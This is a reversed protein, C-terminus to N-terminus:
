ASGAPVRERAPRTAESEESEGADREAARAQRESGRRDRDADSERRKREKDAERERAATEVKSELEDVVTAGGSSKEVTAAAEVEAPARMEDKTFVVEGKYVSALLSDLGGSEHARQVAQHTIIDGMNLVVNDERDLIVKGVPRGVADAIDSLRKKTQEEDVRQGTSDTMEAIKATFQDWLNGVTDKATSGADQATGLTVSATLAELKGASKAAEVDEARIRRGKPVIVSGTDSEVDSGTRRGVLKDEPRAEAARSTATDKASGLKDGAGKIAGQVGGVQADLATATEPRVYVVDNGMSEIEDTALYSTGKAADGILGGSVEYGVVAGTAEDFYIDAVSGQEDGTTTFVHKGLIKEERDVLAHLAPDATASVISGVSRVVVADKGFSEIQDFPVVRSSSMFGGETVVLAVVQTGEPDVVLDHVKELKVGDDLTLIEKGIVAKGKHM